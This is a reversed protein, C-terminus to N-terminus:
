LWVRLVKDPTGSSPSWMPVVTGVVVSVTGAADALAGDTNSLYVSAGFALADLANGVDVLGRRVATIAQGAYHAKTLSIGYIAAEGAATANGKTFKASTTDRRVAAGAALTEDTPGDAKEWVEIPRITSITLDAM